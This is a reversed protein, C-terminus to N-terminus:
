FIVDELQSKKLNDFKRGAMMWVIAEV